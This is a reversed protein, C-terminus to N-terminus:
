LQTEIERIKKIDCIKKRKKTTVYKKCMEKKKAFRPFYIEFVGSKRKVKKKRNKLHLYTYVTHSTM